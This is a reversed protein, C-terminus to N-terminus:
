GYSFWSVSVPVVYFTDRAIAPAPWSREITLTVGNSTLSSGRAFQSIIEDVKRMLAGTGEDKPMAVDVQYLGSVRDVGQTGITAARPEAPLLFPRLYGVGEVPTYKTNEWAVDVSQYAELQADLAARAKDYDIM